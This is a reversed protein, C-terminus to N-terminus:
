QCEWEWVGTRVAIPTSYYYTITYNVKDTIVYAAQMQYDTSPKMMCSTGYKMYFLNTLCDASYPCDRPTVVIRYPTVEVDATSVPRNQDDWRLILWGCISTDFKMNWNTPSMEIKKWETTPQNNGNGNGNAGGANPNFKRLNADEAIVPSVNSLEDKHKMCAAFLLLCIILTLNKM